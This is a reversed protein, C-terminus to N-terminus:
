RAARKKKRCCVAEAPFGVLLMKARGGGAARKIRGIHAMLNLRSLFPQAPHIDLM